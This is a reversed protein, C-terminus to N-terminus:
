DPLLHLGTPIKPQLCDVWAVTNLPGWVVHFVGTASGFGAGLQELPSALIRRLDAVHFRPESVFISIVRWHTLPVAGFNCLGHEEVVKIMNLVLQKEAHDCSSALM